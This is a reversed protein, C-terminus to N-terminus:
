RVRFYRPYPKDCCCCKEKKTKIIVKKKRLEPYMKYLSDLDGKSPKSKYYNFEPYMIDKKDTSHKVGLVHGTEHIVTSFLEENSNITNINLILLALVNIRKSTDYTMYTMGTYADNLMYAPSLDSLCIFVNFNFGSKKTTDVYITDVFRYNKYEWLHLATIVFYKPIRPECYIILPEKWKYKNQATVTDNFLFILSFFLLYPLLLNHM